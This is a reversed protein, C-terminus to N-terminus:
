SVFCLSPLSPKPICPVKMPADKKDLDEAIVNHAIAHISGNRLWVRKFYRLQTARAQNSKGTIIKGWARAMAMVSGHDRMALKLLDSPYRVFHDFLCTFTFPFM